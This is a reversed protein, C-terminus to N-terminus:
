APIPTKPTLVGKTENTAAKQPAAYYSSRSLGLADCADAVTVYPDDHALAVQKIVAETLKPPRGKRATSAALGTKTREILRNREFEALIALMGLTLRGTATATDIADSLSVLEVRKEGLEQVLAYLDPVSRGLRDLRYIVLRDGPRLGDLLRRLGPRSRAGSATETTIDAPDVGAAILAERQGSTQQDATSVRCYGFSRGEM